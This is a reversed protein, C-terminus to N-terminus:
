PAARPGISGGRAAFARALACFAEISLTEARATPDIGAATLLGEADPGLARLAQRLMKRRQGFAAAVVRELRDADAPFLPASYPEIAIVTSVIKPPPTFARAPIDFLRRVNARWQTAVSLRGYDRSGPRAVLREAVEKQFMLTLSEFATLQPLWRTLLATSINYPLNAVIKRPSNGLHAIDIELADAEVIELRGPWAPQLEELAAIARRDKEIAIVRDPKAELLARTLGGPGPGIEIVSRGTLDGAARAIRRTLNLDLLFHQGLGKRATLGHRAIVDRLPPL